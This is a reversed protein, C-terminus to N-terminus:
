PVQLDFAYVEQTSIDRKKIPSESSRKIVAICTDTDLMWKM